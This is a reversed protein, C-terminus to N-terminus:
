VGTTSRQEASEYTYPIEARVLFGYPSRPTALVTGGGVAARERMGAIGHRGGNGEATKRARRGAGDDSIEVEVASGGYRLRVDTHADPGAHKRVNTLAEQVIRYLNLSTLPALERERGIVQWDVTMGHQRAEDILAPIQEVGLTASAEDVSIQASEANRHEANRHEANGSVAQGPDPADEQRLTGLLQHLESVSRRASEEVLRMSREATAPDSTLTARAAASQVGMLSVHHAVADHLERAIRLRELVVAQEAVRNQQARLQEAQEQMQARNRASVWAHHGFWLAAGFYLLNIMVTYLMLALEASGVALSGVESGEAQLHDMRLFGVILWILMAGLVAWRVVRAARRHRSWAGLSYLALFFGVNLILAEPVGLETTVIFAAGAVATVAEPYRRRWAVPLLTVALCLVAVWPAPPDGVVTGGAARFLVTSLVAACFLAGAILADVRLEASTPPRRVWDPSSAPAQTPATSAQSTTSVTTM